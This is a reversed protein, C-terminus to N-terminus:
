YRMPEQICSSVLLTTATSNVPVDAMTRGHCLVSLNVEALIYNIVEDVDKDSMTKAYEAGEIIDEDLAQINFALV